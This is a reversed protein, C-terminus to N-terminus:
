IREVREARELLTLDRSMQRDADALFAILAGAECGQGLDRDDPGYLGRGQRTASSGANNERRTGVHRAM